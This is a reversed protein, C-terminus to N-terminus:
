RELLGRRNARYCYADAVMMAMNAVDAAEEIIETSPAGRDIAHQLEVVEEMVRHLLALPDDHLWGGSPPCMSPDCGDQQGERVGKHRNAELKAEMELAFRGVIPWGLPTDSM